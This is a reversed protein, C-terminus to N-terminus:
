WNYARVDVVGAGAVYPTPVPLTSGGDWNPPLYFEFNTKDPTNLGEGGRSRPAFAICPFGDWTPTSFLHGDKNCWRAVATGATIGNNNMTFQSVVNFFADIINAEVDMFTGSAMTTGEGFYLPIGNYTANSDPAIQIAKSEALKFNAFPPSLIIRTADTAALRTDWNAKLTLANQSAFPNGSIFLALRVVQDFRQNFGAGGTPIAPTTPFIAPRATNYPIQTAM